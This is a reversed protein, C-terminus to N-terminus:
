TNIRLRKTQSLPYKLKQLHCYMYDLILEHVNVHKDTVMENSKPPLHDCCMHDLILEHIHVHPDM